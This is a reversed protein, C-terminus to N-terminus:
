AAKGYRKWLRRGLKLANNHDQPKAEGAFGRQLDVLWSPSVLLLTESADECNVTAPKGHHQMLCCLLCIRHPRTRGDCRDCQGDQVIIQGSNRAAVLSNSLVASASDVLLDSVPEAARANNPSPTRTPRSKFGM